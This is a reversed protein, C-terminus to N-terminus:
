CFCSKLAKHDFLKGWYFTDFSIIEGLILTKGWLCFLFKFKKESINKNWLFTRHALVFVFINQFM